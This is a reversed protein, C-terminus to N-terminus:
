DKVLFESGCKPCLVKRHEFLKDESLKQQANNLRDATAQVHEQKYETTHIKTKDEKQEITQTMPISPADPIDPNTIPVVRPTTTTTTVTTTTSTSVVPTPASIKPMEIDIPGFELNSFLDKNDVKIDHLIQDLKKQDWDGSFKEDNLTVNLAKEEASDPNLDIWTIDDKHIWSQGLSKLAKIRQHGGVIRNGNKNITVTTTLRYGGNRQDEPFAKTHQKISTKLRELQETSIVRPNYSLPNLKSLEVQDAM